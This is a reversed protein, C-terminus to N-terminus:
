CNWKLCFNFKGICLLASLILNPLPDSKCVENPGLGKYKYAMRQTINDINCIDNTSGLVNGQVFKLSPQGPLLEPFKNKIRVKTPQNFINRKNIVTNMIKKIEPCLM